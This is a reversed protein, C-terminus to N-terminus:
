FEPYYNLSRRRKDSTAKVGAWIPPSDFVRHGRCYKFGGNKFYERWFDDSDEGYAVIEFVMEPFEKSLKVMDEECEYWKMTDESLFGFDEVNNRFGLMKALQNAAKKLETKSFEEDNVVSCYFMTYYGM